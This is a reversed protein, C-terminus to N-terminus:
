DSYSVVTAHGRRAALLEGYLKQAQTTVEMAGELREWKNDRVCQSVLEADIGRKAMSQLVFLLVEENTLAMGPVIKSARKLFTKSLM